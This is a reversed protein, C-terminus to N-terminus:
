LQTHRSGAVLIYAAAAGGAGLALAPSAGIVTLVIAIKLFAIAAIVLPGLM